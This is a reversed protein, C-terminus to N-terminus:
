FLQHDVSTARLAPQQLSRVDLPRQQHQHQSVATGRPMQQEAACLFRGASILAQWIASLPCLYADSPLCSHPDHLRALSASFRCPFAFSPAALPPAGLLIAMNILM